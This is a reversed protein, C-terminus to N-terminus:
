YHFLHSALVVPSVTCICTCTCTYYMYYVCYVKPSNIKLGRKAPECPWLAAAVDAVLQCSTLALLICTYMYTMYSYIHVNMTYVVVHIYMYMYYMYMYICACTTCTCTCEKQRHQWKEQLADELGELRGCTTLSLRSLTSSSLSCTAQKSCPLTLLCSLPNYEM